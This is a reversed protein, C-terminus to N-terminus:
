PFPFIIFFLYSLFLVLYTALLGQTLNMMLLAWGVHIATVIFIFSVKHKSTRVHSLFEHLCHIAALIGVPFLVILIFFQFNRFYKFYFIHDYLFNYIPTADYLSLLYILFGFLVLLIFRKNVKLFAGLILLLYVWVPLYIIGLEMQRYDMFIMKDMQSAPIGGEIVTQSGLSLENVANISIHRQPLVIDGQGAESFFM